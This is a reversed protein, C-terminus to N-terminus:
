YAVFTRPHSREISVKEVSSKAIAESDALICELHMSFPGVYYGVNKSDIVKSIQGKLFTSIRFYESFPIIKM